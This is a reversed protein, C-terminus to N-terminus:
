QYSVPIDESILHIWTQGPHLPVPNGNEDTFTTPVSRSGKKWTAHYVKGGTFVLCQGSGTVQSVPVPAGTVDRLGSNTVTVYQIIVNRPAVRNGTTLDTHPAGQISHLYTDSSADYQYSAACMAAKYAINITTANSVMVSELAADEEAVETEGETEGGSGDAEEEAEKQPDVFYLGSDPLFAYSDGTELLYQRLLSTSTYLNHPASRSRERWFHADDEEIYLMGSAQIMSMVTTSGGSCILLPNLFFTIDIDSPRASRTPGIAPAEKSLYFCIFRTIGGEVLEEYVLDADIIGSQPRAKADNEVKVALPRRTVLDWSAVEEGTLPNVPPKEPEPAPEVNDTSASTAACGAIPLLLCLVLPLLALITFLNHHRGKLKSIMDKREKGCPKKEINV